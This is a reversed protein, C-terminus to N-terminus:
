LSIVRASFCKSEKEFLGGLPVSKKEKKRKKWKINAGNAFSPLACTANYTISRELDNVAFNPEFQTQTESSMKGNFTM